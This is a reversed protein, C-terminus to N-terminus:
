EIGEPWLATTRGIEAFNDEISKNLREVMDHSIFIFANLRDMHPVRNDAPGFDCELITEATTDILHALHILDCQLDNLNYSM